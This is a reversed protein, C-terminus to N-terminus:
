PDLRALALRWWREARERGGPRARLLDFGGEDQRRLPIRPFRRGSLIAANLWAEHERRFREGAPVDHSEFFPWRM